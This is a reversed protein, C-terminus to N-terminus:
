SKSSEPIRVSGKDCRIRPTFRYIACIVEPDGTIRESPLNEAPKQSWNMARAHGLDCSGFQTTTGVCCECLAYHIGAAQRALRPRWRWHFVNVIFSTSPGAGM